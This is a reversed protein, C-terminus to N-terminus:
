RAGSVKDWSVFAGQKIVVSYRPRKPSCMGGGGLNICGMSGRKMEQDFAAIGGGGLFRRFSDKKVGLDAFGFGMATLSYLSFSPSSSRSVSVLSAISEARWGETAWD